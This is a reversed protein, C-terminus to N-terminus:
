AGEKELIRVDFGHMEQLFEDVSFLDWCAFAGRRQLEGNLLKMAVVISPTCPIEPGHNSDALLYWDVYKKEGNADNGALHIHMGGRDSGFRLLRQSLKRFTPAFRTWDRILGMRTLGAMAWLGLQEWTAELAAHFEVNRLAPDREPMLQLDPVDCAGSWRSGLDPYHQRCLDQWGYVTSWDGDRLRTFPRGCYSLVAKVTGLGRPTQHAPAISIEVDEIQAFRERMTEFVASSIGPLTSAGAILAVDAAEARENLSPFNAVFERGDALDVYHCGADICASAVAYDQGQFPGATHIVLDVNLARLKGALDPATFDLESRRPAVLELGPKQALRECIRGGFHGSGGLVLLKM